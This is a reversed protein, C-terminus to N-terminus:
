VCNFVCVHPLVGRIVHGALRLPRQRCLVCACAVSEWASLPIQDRSGWFDLGFCVVMAIPPIVYM